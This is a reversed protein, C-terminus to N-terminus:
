HRPAFVRWAILLVLAGILIFVLHDEAFGVVDRTAAVIHSWVSAATTALYEAAAQAALDMAVLM